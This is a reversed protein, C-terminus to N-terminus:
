PCHASNQPIWCASINAVISTIRPRALEVGPQRLLGPALLRTLGVEALLDEVAGARLAVALLALAEDARAQARAGDRVGSDDGLDHAM